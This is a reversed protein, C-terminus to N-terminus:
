TVLFNNNLACCEIPFQRWKWFALNQLILALNLFALNFGTTEIGNTFVCTTLCSETAV